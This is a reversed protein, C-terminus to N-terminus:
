GTEARSRGRPLSTRRYTRCVCGTGRFGRADGLSGPGGAHGQRMRHTARVPVTYSCYVFYKKEDTWSKGRDRIPGPAVLLPVPHRSLARGGHCPHDRHNRRRLFVSGHRVEPLDLLSRRLPQQDQEHCRQRHLLPLHGRRRRRCRRLGTCRGRGLSTHHGRGIKAKYQKLLDTFKSNEM